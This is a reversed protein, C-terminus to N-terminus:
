QVQFMEWQNSALQQKTRERIKVLRMIKKLGMVEKRSMSLVQVKHIKKRFSKLKLQLNKIQQEPMQASSSYRHAITTEKALVVPDGGHSLYIDKLRVIM